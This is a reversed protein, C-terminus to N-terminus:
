QSGIANSALHLEYGDCIRSDIPNRRPRITSSSGSVMPSPSGGPLTEIMTRTGDDIDIVVLVWGPDVALTAFV